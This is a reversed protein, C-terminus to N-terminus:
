LQLHFVLKLLPLEYMFVARKEFSHVIFHYKITFMELNAGNLGCLVFGVFLIVEELCFHSHNFCWVRVRM